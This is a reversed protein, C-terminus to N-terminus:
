FLTMPDDEGAVVRMGLRLRVASHDTLGHELRTEHLYESEVVESALEHGVHFYDYRYGDGTRGVWSHQPVEPDHLVHHADHLGMAALSDLFEYEFPMFQRYSPKHLRHIVNYDGGVVLRDRDFSPLKLLAEVFAGLFLRKRSIKEPTADRSPIYVGVVTVSPETEIRLAVARHPLTVAEGLSLSVGPVKSVIAVGRDGKQATHVVTRGLSRFHDLIYATGDGASTESLILVEEPRGRLWELQRKARALSAAGINVTLLSVM